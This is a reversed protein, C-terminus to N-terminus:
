WRGLIARSRPPTFNLALSRIEFTVRVQPLQEYPVADQSPDYDHLNGILFRLTGRIKRYVESTQQLVGPGIMIDSSYDSSAVWLRLVDAGYAPNQAHLPPTSLPNHVLKARILSCLQLSM